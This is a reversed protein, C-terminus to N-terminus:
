KKSHTDIELTMQGLMFLVYDYPELNAENNDIKASIQSITRGSFIQLTVGHLGSLHKAISDGIITVKRYEAFISSFFLIKEKM